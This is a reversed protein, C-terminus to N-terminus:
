FYEPRSRALATRPDWFASPFVSDFLSLFQTWKELALKWNKVHQMMSYRRASHRVNEDAFKDLFDRLPLEAIEKLVEDSCTPIFYICEHLYWILSIIGTRVRGNVLSTDFPLQADELAAALSNHHKQLFGHQQSKWRQIYLSTRNLLDLGPTVQSTDIEEFNDFILPTLTTCQINKLIYGIFQTTALDM